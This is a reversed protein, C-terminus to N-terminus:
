SDCVCVCVCVSVDVPFDHQEFKAEVEYVDAEDKYNWRCQHYALSFIPPIPTTGTLSSYQRWIDSPSPGALLWLDVVGSESLWRSQQGVGSGSPKVDIFTESPNLWFAASTVARGNPVGHGVLLPIAGYLSMPEDLEYRFHFHFFFHTDLSFEIRLLSSFQLLLAAWLVARM